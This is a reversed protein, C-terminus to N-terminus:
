PAPPRDLQLVLEAVRPGEPGGWLRDVDPLAEEFSAVFGDHDPATQGALQVLIPHSFDIMQPKRLEAGGGAAAGERAADPARDEPRLTQFRVYVREPLGHRRRWLGLRLFYASEGEGEARRPYLPGPVLWTRRHLVLRRDLVVRPRVTIEELARGTRSSPLPWDFTPAPHFTALLRYLPPRAHPSMFGTDVPLVRRGSATHVLALAHPDDPAPRVDLETPLFSAERGRGESLPDRIEHEILWPHLNANFNADESLEALLAEGTERNRERLEETFADDFLPLFRSFMKGYGLYYGGRRLHVREPEGAAPRGLPEAYFTVSWGEGAPRPPVARGVEEIEEWELHIEDDGRDAARQWREGVLTALRRHGARLDAVLPLGFPNDLDYGDRPAEGRRSRYEEELHRKYHQRFYVEYFELLPVVRGGFTRDHFHRMTALDARLLCLRSTTEVYRGLSAELVQLEAPDGLVARAEATADEFVPTNVELPLEHEDTYRDFREELRRFIERLEHADDVRAWREVDGRQRELFRAGQGAEPSGIAMLREAMPREWDTQQAPVSWTLRLLGLELLRDLWASAQKGSDDGTAGALEDTLEGLTPRAAAGGLREELWDLPPSPPLRQFTERGGSTGLFALRDDGERRLTPNLEVDLFRRLAESRAVQASLVQAFAKNLRARVRGRRLDGRIEFPGDGSPAGAPVIEGELVRCFTGFPTAKTVMRSWYRMLGREVRREKSRLKAPNARRYFRQARHLVPSSLLLARQFDDDEIAEQLRRRSAEVERRYAAPLASRAAELCRCARAAATAAAELEPALGRPFEGRPPRLNYLDRRLEVALARQIDNEAGGIWDHLQDSLRDRGEALETELRDVEAVLGAAEAARQELLPAISGGALRLVFRPFFRM